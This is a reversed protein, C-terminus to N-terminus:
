QSTENGNNETEGEGTPEEKMPNNPFRLPAVMTMSLSKDNDINPNRVSVTIEVAYPFKNQKRVDNVDKHSIWDTTWEEEFGPGLYRLAFREINELLVTETGGQTVDDDIIVSERRWLCQSRWKKNMRDTCDRLFYGVEAQDSEKADRLTRTHSLTTFHLSNNTGIFQGIVRQTKKKFERKLKESRKVPPPNDGSPMDGKDGGGKGGKGAKKEEEQALRVREEHAKNHVEIAPDHYNFALQIDRSMVRLADRVMTNRDVTSQIKARSSLARNISQATFISLFGLITMAILIELLTFGNKTAM